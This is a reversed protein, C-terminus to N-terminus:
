PYTILDWVPALAFWEHLQGWLRRDKGPLSGHADGSVTLSTLPRVVIQRISALEAM